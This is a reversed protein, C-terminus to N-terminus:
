FELVDDPFSKSLKQGSQNTGFFLRTWKTGQPTIWRKTIIGETGVPIDSYFKKVTATPHSNNIESRMLNNDGSADLMMEILKHIWHGLEKTAASHCECRDDKDTYGGLAHCKGDFLSAEWHVCFECTTIRNFQEEAEHENSTLYLGYKNM